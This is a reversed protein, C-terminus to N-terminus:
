SREPKNEDINRGWYVVVFCCHLMRNERMWQLNDL